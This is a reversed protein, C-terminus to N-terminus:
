TVAPDPNRSQSAKPRRVSGSEAEGSCSDFASVALQDHLRHAPQLADPNNNAFPRRFGPFFTITPSIDGGCLDPSLEIVLFGM